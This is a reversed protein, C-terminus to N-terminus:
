SKISAEQIRVKLGDKQAYDFSQGLKQGDTRCRVEANGFRQHLNGEVIGIPLHVRDHDLQASNKGESQEEQTPNNLEQAGKRAAFVAVPCPEVM